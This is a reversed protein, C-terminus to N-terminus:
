QRKTKAALAPARFLVALAEEVDGLGLVEAREPSADLALADEGFLAGLLVDDLGQELVERLLVNLATQLLEGAEVRAIVLRIITALRGLPEQRLDVRDNLVCAGVFVAHVSLVELVRPLLAGDDGPDGALGVASDDDASVLVGDVQEQGADQGGGASIIITRAGHGDELDEAHEQADLIDDLALGIVGNFEM